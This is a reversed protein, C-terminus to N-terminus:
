GCGYKGLQPGANVACDLEPNLDQKTSYLVKASIHIQSQLVAREYSFSSGHCLLVSIPSAVGGLELAGCFFRQQAQFRM